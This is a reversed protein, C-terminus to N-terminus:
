PVGGFVGKIQEGGQSAAGRYVEKRDGNFLRYIESQDYTQSATAGWRSVGVYRRSESRAILEFVETSCLGRLLAVNCRNSTEIGKFWM